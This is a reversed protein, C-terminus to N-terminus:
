SGVRVVKGGKMHVEILKSTGFPKGNEDHLTAVKKKTRADFIDRRM